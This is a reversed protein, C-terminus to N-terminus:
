KAGDCVENFHIVRLVKNSYFCPQLPTDGLETASVLSRVADKFEGKFVASASIPVDRDVAWHEVEFTWGAKEKWKILAERITRDAPSISWTNLDVAPKAPTVSAPAQLITAPSAKPVAPSITPVTVVKSSGATATPSPTHPMPQTPAVSAVTKTKVSSVSEPAKVAVPTNSLSKADPQAVRKTAETSVQGKKAQVAKKIWYTFDNSATLPEVISLTAVKAKWDLTFQYGYRMGVDNLVETWPEGHVFDIREPATFPETSAYALYWGEPLIARMAENFYMGYQINVPNIPSYIEIESQKGVNSVPTSVNGIHSIRPLNTDQSISSQQTQNSKNLSFIGAHGSIPIISLALLSLASAAVIRKM